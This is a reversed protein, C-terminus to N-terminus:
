RKFHYFFPITFVISSAILIMIIFQISIVDIMFYIGFGFIIMLVFVGLLAM